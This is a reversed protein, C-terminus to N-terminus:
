IKNKNTKSLPHHQMVAEKLKADLVHTYIETTSIDKHGLMTQISKLNGGNNLIHSAFSHRIVHPSIHANYGLADFSLKKLMKAFGERTIHM